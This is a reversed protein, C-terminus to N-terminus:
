ASRPGPTQGENLLVHSYTDLTLSNRSHGLQAAVSTVPVGRAIQVSAYRHRLDHPHYHAIGASACARRMVSKITAPTAGTFVRRDPTRDDPPCSAVIASMLAAPVAVWRRAAATKGNRIRFRNSAADVDQWELTHLEGVRMGTEALTQLALRWRGPSRTVIAAVDASSPPSLTSTEIRPLRVRRDRAPNPDVDAFDLIARFTAVYRAVTSPKLNLTAIWEQVDSPTITAPDRGHFMTMSLAHSTIGRRTEEAADVRSEAYAVAVVDFTRVVRVRCLDRLMVAPDQGAAIWGAVLDRRIKAERLTAFTGAVEIPWARGGRRYRVQFRLGGARTQRRRITAGM